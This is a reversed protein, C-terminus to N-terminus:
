CIQAFNSIDNALLVSPLTYCNGIKIQKGFNRLRSTLVYVITKENAFLNYFKFLFSLNQFKKIGKLSILGMPYRFFARLTFAKLITAFCM